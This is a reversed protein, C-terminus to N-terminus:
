CRRSRSWPPATSTTTSCRATSVGSSSRKSRSASPPRLTRSSSPASPRHSRRRRYRRGPRSRAHRGPDARRHHRGAVRVAGGQGGDGAARRASRHRGSGARGHRQDRRRRHEASQHVPEGKGPRRPDRPLRSRCGAHVRRAPDAHDHDAARVAHPDQRRPSPQARPGVQRRVAREAACRDAFLVASKRVRRDRGHDGLADTGPRPAAVAPARHRAARRRDGALVSALSGPQQVTEVLLIEPIKMDVVSVDGAAGTSGPLRLLATGRSYRVQFVRRM